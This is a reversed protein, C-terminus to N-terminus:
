SGPKHLSCLSQLARKRHTSPEKKWLPGRTYDMKWECKQNSQLMVLHAPSGLERSLDQM